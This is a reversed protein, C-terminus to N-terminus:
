NNCDRCAAVQRVENKEGYLEYQSSALDIDGLKSSGDINKHLLSEISNKSPDATRGRREAKA